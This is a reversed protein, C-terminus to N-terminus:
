SFIKLENLSKETTIPKTRDLIIEFCAEQALANVLWPQGQTLFFAHEIAEKTFEQGTSETHQRIFPTYRKERTFNSLVLSIAKIPSSTSVYEGHEKSWVRYERINKFGILCLSPPFSEQPTRRLRLQIQSSTSISTFRWDLSDIEDIFLVIPSKLQNAHLDFHKM